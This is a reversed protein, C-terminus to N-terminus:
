AIRSRDYKQLLDNMAEVMLKELTTDHDLAIQKLAKAGERTIWATISRRGDRSSPTAPTQKAETAQAVPLPAPPPALEPERAAEPESLRKRLSSM